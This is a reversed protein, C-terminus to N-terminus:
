QVGKFWVSFQNYSDTDKNTTNLEELTLEGLVKSSGTPKFIKFLDSWANPADVDVIAEAITGTYSEDEFVHEEGKQDVFVLSSLFYASRDTKGQMFSIIGEIGITSLMYKIYPGPFGGLASIHFSSDDVLVPENLLQYAARAKARAVETGSDAQPEIIDLSHQKITATIGLGDFYRQLSAVKGSNSTVFNVTNM